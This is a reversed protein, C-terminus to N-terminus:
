GGSVLRRLASVEETHMATLEDQKRKIKV